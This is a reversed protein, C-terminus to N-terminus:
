KSPTTVVNWFLVCFTVALLLDIMAALLHHETMLHQWGSHAFYAGLCGLIIPLVLRLGLGISEAVDACEKKPLWSDKLKSVNGPKLAFKVVTRPLKEPRASLIGSFYGLPM